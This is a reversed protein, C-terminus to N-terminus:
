KYSNLRHLIRANLILEKAVTIFIWLKSLYFYILKLLLFVVCHYNLKVCLHIKKIFWYINNISNFFFNKNKQEIIKWCYTSLRSIKVRGVDEEMNRKNDRCTKLSLSFKIYYYTMINIKNQNLSFPLMKWYCQLLIKNSPERDLGKM